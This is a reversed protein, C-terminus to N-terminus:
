SCGTRSFPRAQLRSRPSPRAGGRAEVHGRAYLGTPRVRPQGPARGSDKRSDASAGSRKQRQFTRYQYCKQPPAKLSRPASPALLAVSSGDAEPSKGLEEELSLSESAEASSSAKPMGPADPSAAAKGSVPLFADAPEVPSFAEAGFAGVVGLASWDSSGAVKAVQASTAAPTSSPVSSSAPQM